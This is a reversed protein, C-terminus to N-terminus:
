SSLRELARLVFHELTSASQVGPLSFRQAFWVNPVGVVERQRGLELDAVVTPDDRRATAVSVPFPAVVEALQEPDALDKGQQFYAQFLADALELRETAAAGEAQYRAMVAHALRTDPVRTIRDYRLEIGDEAAAEAVRAPARALDAQAGYRETLLAARDAGEATLDPKLLYARFHLEVDRDIRALVQTLRREGIFCWPCLFDSFVEILM